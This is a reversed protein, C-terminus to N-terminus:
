FLGGNWCNLSDCDLLYWGHGHLPTEKFLANDEYRSIREVADIIADEVGSDKPKLFFTSEVGRKRFFKKVKKEAGEKDFDEPVNTWPLLRSLESAAFMWKTRYIKINVDKATVLKNWGKGKPKIDWVAGSGRNVDFDLGVLKCAAVLTREFSKGKKGVDLKTEETDEIREDLYNRFRM